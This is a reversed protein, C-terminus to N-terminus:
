RVSRLEPHAVLVAELDAEELKADEVCEPDSKLEEIFRQSEAINELRIAHKLDKWQQQHRTYAEINEASQPDDLLHENWHTYTEQENGWWWLSFLKWDLSTSEDHEDLEVFTPLIL